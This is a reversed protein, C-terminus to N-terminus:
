PTSDLKITWNTSVHIYRSNNMMLWHQRFVTLVKGKSQWISHLYTIFNRGNSCRNTGNDMKTLHCNPTAFLSVSGEYYFNHNKFFLNIELLFLYVLYYDYNLVTTSLYIEIEWLNNFFNLLQFLKHFHIQTNIM